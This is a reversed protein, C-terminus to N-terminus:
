SMINSLVPTLQLYFFNLIYDMLCVSEISFIEMYWWFNLIYDMLCVSEISFIEM